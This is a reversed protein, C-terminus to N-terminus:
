PSLFVRLAKHVPSFQGRVRELAVEAERWNRGKICEHLQRTHPQLQPFITNAMSGKLVHATARAAEHEGGILDRELSDLLEPIQTILLGAVDRFDEEPLGISEMAGLLIEVDSKEPAVVTEPVPPAIAQAGPAAALLSPMKQVPTLHRELVARLEALTVPKSLFESMGAEEGRQRSGTTVNATFALIPVPPLEREREWERIRRSSEYGDMGPMQCDMLVLDFDRAMFREVAEQGDRAGIVRSATCGLRTLMGRAVTVNAAHDDVVLIHADYQVSDAERRQAPTVVPCSAGERPLLLWEIALRLREASVPKKLCISAGPLDSADDWGQDLMDTLLIFKWRSEGDRLARYTLPNEQGPKQNLLVLDYPHGEQRAHRLVSLATETEAVFDFRSGFLEFVDELFLRQLGDIEVGLVRLHKFLDRGPEVGAGQPQQHLQISFHFISGTRAHPNDDVGIAGGMREVLRRSIALGLGTGPFGQARHEEARAFMDFIRERDSEPVGPGTDRVEFLYETRGESGPGVPGGHLEVSGREPTFKIANGLLNTFVQRLRNVDGRVATPMGHPFFPTLEIEKTHALTALILASEDVLARLDFDVEDLELRDAEMKSFDLVNDILALLTKGSGYALRVQERREYDLPAERLLELMGLVVNMPTRIEHSMIALFESKAQSESLARALEAELTAIKELLRTEAPSPAPPEPDPTVSSEIPQPIALPAPPSPAGHRRAGIRMGAGFAGGLALAVAGAVPGEAM